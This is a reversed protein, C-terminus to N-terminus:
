VSQVLPPRQPQALFLPSFSAQSSINFFQTPKVPVQAAFSPLAMAGCMHCLSCNDCATNNKGQHQAHGAHPDQDNQAQAQAQQSMQHQAHQGQSKPANHQCFPMTAAAYGQLPLWLMLCILLLKRMLHKM